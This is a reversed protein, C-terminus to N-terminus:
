ESGVNWIFCLQPFKLWPLCWSRPLRKYMYIQVRINYEFKQGQNNGASVRSVQVRSRLLGKSALQRWERRGQQLMWCGAWIYEGGHYANPRKHKFGLWVESVHGGSRLPGKSTTSTRTNYEVENVRIASRCKPLTCGGGEYARQPVNQSNPTKLGYWVKDITYVRKLLAGRTAGWSGCWLRNHTSRVEAPLQFCTTNSPM